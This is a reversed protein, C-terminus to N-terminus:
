PLNLLYRAQDAVQKHALELESEQVLGQAFAIDLVEEAIADADLPLGETEYIRAIEEIHEGFMLKDEHSDRDPGV